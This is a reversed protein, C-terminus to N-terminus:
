DMEGAAKLETRKVAYSLALAGNLAHHRVLPTEGPPFFMEIGHLVDDLNLGDRVLSAITRHRVKFTLNKAKTSFGPLNAVLDKDLTHLSIIELVKKFEIPVRASGTRAVVAATFADDLWVLFRDAAEGPTTKQSVGYGLHPIVETKVFDSCDAESWGETLTTYFCQGAESSLGFSLLKPTAQNSYQTDLFVRVTVTRLRENPDENSVARNTM